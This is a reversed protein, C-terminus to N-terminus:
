AAPDCIFTIVNEIANKVVPETCRAFTLQSVLNKLTNGMVERQFINFDSMSLTLFHLQFCHQNSFCSGVSVSNSSILLWNGAMSMQMFKPLTM